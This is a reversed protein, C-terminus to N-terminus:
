EFLRDIWDTVARTYASPLGLAKSIEGHGLDEPLVQVPVGLTAARAQLARGQLCSDARQSSCVILMSLSRRGLRQYPSAATWFAPDTGFADRYLGPLRPKRMLEPVNMAASDLAVVGLPRGAGAQALLSPSAGLLAVLHAGASHGMLVVRRPDAGWQPARKQVDAVAAAVDAAQQLPDAEPLLRYDINVFVFGRALWHAAKDGAVGPNDKDGRRWGGGHVMLLVPAGPKTGTPLYVDYRQQPHAGYALDRQIRVGAPFVAAEHPRRRQELLQRLRQQANGPAAIMALAVIIIVAIATPMPRM